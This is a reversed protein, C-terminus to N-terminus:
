RALEQLRSFFVQGSLSFGGECVDLDRDLFSGFGTRADSKYDPGTSIVFQRTIPMCGDSKIGFVGKIGRKQDSNM